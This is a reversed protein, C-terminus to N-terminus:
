NTVSSVILSIFVIGASSSTDLTGHTKSPMNPLGCLNRFKYPNLRIKKKYFNM